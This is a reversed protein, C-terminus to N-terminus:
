DLGFGIAQGFVKALRMMVVLGVWVKGMVDGAEGWGGAEDRAKAKRLQSVPLRRRAEQRSPSPRLISLGSVTQTQMIINIVVDCKVENFM